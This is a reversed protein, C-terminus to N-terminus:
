GGRLACAPDYRYQYYLLYRIAIPHVTGNHLTFVLRCINRVMALGIPYPIIPSRSGSHYPRCYKSIMRRPGRTQDAVNFQASELKRSDVKLEPQRRSAAPPPPTRLSGSCCLCGLVVITRPRVPVTGTRCSYRRRSLSKSSETSRSMFLHTSHTLYTYAM